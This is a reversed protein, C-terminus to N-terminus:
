RTKRREKELADSLELIREQMSSMGRKLQEIKAKETEKIITEGHFVSPEENLLAKIGKILAENWRIHKSKAENYLELPISTTVNAM